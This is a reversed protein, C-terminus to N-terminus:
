ATNNRMKRRTEQRVTDVIALAVVQEAVLRWSGHACGTPPKGLRLASLPAAPQGALRTQRAPPQPNAGYLASAFGVTVLRQRGHEGTNTRCSCAAAIHPETWNPGPADAKRLRPARRVQQSSGTLKNMVGYLTAREEDTLRM